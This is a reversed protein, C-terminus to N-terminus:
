TERGHAGTTVAEILEAADLAWNDAGPRAIVQVSLPLGEASLAAPLSVVPAGSLTVARCQGMIDWGSINHGDIDLNGSLDAAPGGAVPLLVIDASSFVELDRSRAAAAAAVAARVKGSNTALSRRISEATSPLIGEERGTVAAAHDVMPDVERLQNYAELSDAFMGPWHRLAHIKEALREALAEMMTTVERRVPGLHSGDSWAVVLDRNQVKSRAVPAAALVSLAMRLDRISRAVPGVVQTSAQLSASPRAALSSGFWGGSGPVVGLDPVVHPTPRLATVGVCQAPWRLSGGYDTGVGLGSIGAAVAASEGGSSGGPTMGPFRPNTTRGGVPSETVAGFAFEPCNTKGIVVAGSAQLRRVAPATFTAINHAYSTSGGTLPMGAVAIIDKVSIPIGALSGLVAGRYRRRDLEEAVRAAGEWDEHLFAGLSRWEQARSHAAELLEMAKLEGSRVSYALATADPVATYADGANLEALLSAHAM